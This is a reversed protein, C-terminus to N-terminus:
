CVEDARSPNARSKAVPSRTGFMPRPCTREWFRAGSPRPAWFGGASFHGFFPHSIAKTPPHPSSPGGPESHPSVIRAAEPGWFFAAPVNAGLFLRGFTTTGLVGWRFFPWFVPPIYGQHPPPAFKTRRAGFPALSQSRGGHALFLGRARERGFVLARLDHNGFGGQPFIALFRTPYLRPPPIPRVEDAPSRIPRSKALPRRTGFIPRPCTRAWFRAGSPRPEM